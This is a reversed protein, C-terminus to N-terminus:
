PLAIIGNRARNILYKLEEESAMSQHDRCMVNEQMCLKCWDYSKEKFASLNYFMTYGAYVHTKHGALRENLSYVEPFDCDPHYNDLNYINTSSDVYELMSESDSESESQLYRTYFRNEEYVKDTSISLENFIRNLSQAITTSSM